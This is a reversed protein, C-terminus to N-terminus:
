SILVTSGVSVERCGVEIRNTVRLHSVTISCSNSRELFVLLIGVLVMVNYSRVVSSIVQLSVHISHLIIFMGEITISSTIDDITEIQEFSQIMKKM